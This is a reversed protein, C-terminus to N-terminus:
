FPLDADTINISDQTVTKTSMDDFEKREDSTTEKKSGLFEINECLVYTKHKKEGNTEYNDVRLQGQIGILNGKSQYKALNEAQKNWVVCNIFDVQKEGDRTIQRNTAISFQCVATGSKTHELTLDKTIRGTIWCKNM